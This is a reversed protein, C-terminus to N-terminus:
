FETDDWAKNNLVTNKTELPINVTFTGNYTNYNSAHYAATIGCNDYFEFTVESIHKGPEVYADLGWTLTLLNSYVYYRWDKIQINTTGLKDLQIVDSIAYEELMGYPM